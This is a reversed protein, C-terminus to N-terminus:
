ILLKTNRKPNGKPIEITLKNIFENNLYITPSFTSIHTILMNM